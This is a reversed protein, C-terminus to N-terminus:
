AEREPPSEREPSSEREPPSSDCRTPSHGAVRQALLVLAARAAADEIAFFAKLLDLGDRTIADPMADLAPVERAVTAGGRTSSGGAPQLQVVNCVNGTELPGEGGIERCSM